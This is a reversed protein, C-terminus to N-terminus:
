WDSRGELARHMEFAGCGRQQAQQPKPQAARPQPAQAHQQPAAPKGEKEGGERQAFVTTGFFLLVAVAGTVTKFKM